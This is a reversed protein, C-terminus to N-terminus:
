VGIDLNLYFASSSQPSNEKPLLYDQFGLVRLGPGCVTWYWLCDQFMLFGYSKYITKNCEKIDENTHKYVCDQERCEEYLRFFREYLARLALPDRYDRKKLSYITM